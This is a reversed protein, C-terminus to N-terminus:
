VHNMQQWKFKRIEVATEVFCVDTLQLTLNANKITEM